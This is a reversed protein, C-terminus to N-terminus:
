DPTARVGAALLAQKFVCVMGHAAFIVAKTEEAAGPDAAAAYNASDAAQELEVITERATREASRGDADALAGVAKQAKRHFEGVVAALVPSAAADEQVAALAEGSAAEFRAVQTAVHRVSMLEM